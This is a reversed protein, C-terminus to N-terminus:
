RTMARSLCCPIPITIADESSGSIRPWASRTMTIHLPLFVAAEAGREIVQLDIICRHGRGRDTIDTRNGALEGLPVRDVEAHGQGETGSDGPAKFLFLGAVAPSETQLSTLEYCITMIDDDSGWTANPYGCARFQISMDRSVPIVSQLSLLIHPM